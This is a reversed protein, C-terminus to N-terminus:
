SKDPCVMPQLRLRRNGNALLIECYRVDRVNKVTRTDQAPSVATGMGIFGLLVLTQKM